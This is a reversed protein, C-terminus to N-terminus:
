TSHARAELDQWREYLRHVKEQADHVQQMIEQLKVHNSAITPDTLKAELKKVENEATEITQEINNLERKENTSLKKRESQPSADTSSRLSGAQMLPSGGAPATSASGPRVSDRAFPSNQWQPYDAFYAANGKGDLALILTSVSDLMFRDHTVLVVAGAFEQLSEELVELSPIDLDNTPEDLILIDAPRLMLNAILIRAQEGGSLYSIPMDLQDSRFLFKKAWTSVHLPRGQYTVTDGVPSLARRLTQTQDLQDRNQDFVVVRLADARKITGKDPQLQGDIVKLFTTKGSGNAGILGLRVGPSLVMNVNHFLMRGGMSKELHKGVLLEKTKRGSANFDIEVSANQANRFKVEALADILRGAEDIRAQAKTQRAIAGRQLWAIERRVKSAIAQELHAQATIYEERAVLFDTYKGNVVLCGDAYIQNLEVVRSCVNELFTRDHTVLVFPFTGDNLMKELWLVGDLDLHNTPEDLFVVDPDTILKSAISLRKRWGGSLTSATAAIDPFGMRTAMINVRTEREHIEVDGEISDSLIEGITKEAAFKEDQPIYATRLGKRGTIKGDDPTTIGAMIKLLTSKGAGNPGILGLKDNEEIALNVDRFLPRSAYSKTISQCTLIPAM